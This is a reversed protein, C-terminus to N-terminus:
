AQAAPKAAPLAPLKGKQVGNVAEEADAGKARDLALIAEFLQDDALDRHSLLFTEEGKQVEIGTGTAGPLRTIEVALSPNHFRLVPLRRDIFHRLSAQRSDVTSKKHLRVSIRGVQRLPTVTSVIAQLLAASASM